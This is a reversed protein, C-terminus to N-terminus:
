PDMPHSQFFEWIIQNADLEDTSPGLIASSARAFASGPWTHGAGAVVYLDVTSGDRCRDHRVLQISPSIQEEAPPACGEDDAWAQATSRVPAFPLDAFARTSADDWTLTALATNPSGDFTVHQDATGHIALIPMPRAPNCDAPHVLGAVTAIAAVKDSLRCAVLSALFAGNSFGDVYVRTTDVCLDAAIDDIVDAVFRVDDPLDPHPVANWYPLPGNGQPTALIFGASESETALDSMAIQGAAGSLYGHLDIVVPTPREDYGEPVYRKYTRPMGGSDIATDVHAGRVPSPAPDAGCGPSGPLPASDATTPSISTNAGEDTPTATPPTPSGCAPVIVIALVAAALLARAKV